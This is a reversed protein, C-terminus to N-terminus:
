RRATWISKKHHEATKAVVAKRYEHDTGLCYARAIQALIYADAVNDDDTDFGWDRLVCKMVLAKDAKANGTAYQKTHIPNVNLIHGYAGNYRLAYALACLMATVQLNPTRTPTEIAYIFGEHLDRNRKRHIEALKLVRCVIHAVRDFLDSGKDPIRESHILRGEPELIVIGTGTISPDIGVYHQATTAPIIPQPKPTKAKPTM